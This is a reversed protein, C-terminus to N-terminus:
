CVISSSDLIISSANLTFERRKRETEGDRGEKKKVEGRRGKRKEGKRERETEKM